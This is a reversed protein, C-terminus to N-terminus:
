LLSCTIASGLPVFSVKNQNQAKASSLPQLLPCLQHFRWQSHGGFTVPLVHSLNPSALFLVFLQVSSDPYPCWHPFGYIFPLKLFLM